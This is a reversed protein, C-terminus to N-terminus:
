AGTWVARSTLLLRAVFRATVTKPPVTAWRTRGARGKEDDQRFGPGVTVPPRRYAGHGAAGPGHTGAKAPIVFPCFNRGRTQPAAPDTIGGAHGQLPQPREVRRESAPFSRRPSRHHPEIPKRMGDTVGSKNWPGGPRSLAPHRVLGKEEGCPLGRFLDPTVPHAQFAAPKPSPENAIARRQRPLLEHTAM